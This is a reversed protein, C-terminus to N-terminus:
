SSPDPPCPTSSGTTTPSASRSCNDRPAPALSGARADIANRYAHFIDDDALHAHADPRNSAENSPAIPRNGPSVHASPM